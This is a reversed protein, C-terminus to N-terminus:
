GVVAATKFEEGQVFEREAVREIQQVARQYDQARLAHDIAEDDLGEGEFWESARNHLIPVSDPLTQSLRQRLLGGFLHHYRYWRQGEDLPVIFLNAQDLM